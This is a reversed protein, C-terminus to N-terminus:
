GIQQVERLRLKKEIFNLYDQWQPMPNNKLILYSRKLPKTHAECLTFKILPLIKLVKQKGIHVTFKLPIVYLKWYEQSGKAVADRIKENPM